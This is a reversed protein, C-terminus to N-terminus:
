LGTETNRVASILADSVLQKIQGTSETVNTTSINIEKVLNEIRININKMEGGTGTYTKTADSTYGKPSIPNDNKQVTKETTVDVKMQHQEDAIQTSVGYLETLQADIRKIKAMGLATIGEFKAREVTELPNYESIKDRSNNAKVVISGYSKKSAVLYDIQNKLKTQQLFNEQQIKEQFQEKTIKGEAFLIELDQRKDKLENNVQKVKKQGAKEGNAVALNFMETKIKAAEAGSAVDYLKSALATAAGIALGWGVGKLASGFGSMLGKSKNASQSVGEIGAGLGKASKASSDFMGKMWTFASKVGNVAPAFASITMGIQSAPELYATAGDTLEFFSIKLDEFYSKQRKAAEATSAMVVKAQDNAVNTGTISKTMKDQASISNILIKASTENEVGFVQAMVTADGSAKSLEKLRATFPLSKDSVITMDVGLARLKSAAEKPIVDEGAMKGLVNRLGIGAESGFKGGAAMAQLASNTEEFSLNADKAKIGTQKLAESLQPVEAAGFKAGAAMTNMMRTLEEQAKIPNSLDVGYQLVSTTLADTAGTMDNGMTKSLIRGSREMLSLAKENSAIDPGLRSLITKYSELSEAASGGFEKASARAKQGLQDLKDGTVGTIAEVDALASSFKLGPESLNTLEQAVNQFGQHISVLNINRIQKGIGGLSTNTKKELDAVTGSISGFESRLKRIEEFILNDLDIHISGDSVSM